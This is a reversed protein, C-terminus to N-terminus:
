QTDVVQKSQKDLILEYAGVVDRGARNWSRFEEVWARAQTGTTKRLEPNKLLRVLVESLSKADGKEFLFGNLGDTVIEVLARTNSVVVPKQMAMAEFPKLPSVLECVQWPKRPFPAIDILSYHAEVEEHPVRGTLIAIDDLGCDHILQRLEEIVAGDGVLLLRFDIGADRILAAASVLDDLGEYDVFSGVYGIVPVGAPIGLRQALANDRQLPLFRQPDVSNFAISIREPAVGREILEEKMATTITVIHDAERVVLDEFYQMNRFKVSKEFAADRSSRTIEWFGRIEYIFPLGTRRAAILAPLATTYNSAAHVLAPRENRIAEECRDAAQLLYESESIGRRGEGSLRHYSLGDIEDIKAIEQGELEPKFDQPFGPRTYPKIDWGANKVGLAIGHSRTAYGVSTYPLSFHLFNISTHHKPEVADVQSPAAAEVFIRQRSNIQKMLARSTDDLGADDEATLNLLRLAEDDECCNFFVTAAGKLTTRDKSADIAAYALRKATDAQGERVACAAAKMALFGQIRPALGECQRSVLQLLGTSGGDQIAKSVNEDWQQKDDATLSSVGDPLPLLLAATDDLVETVETKPPVCAEFSADLTSYAGVIDEAVRTWTRHKTVFTRANKGLEERLAPDSMLTEIAGALADPDAPRHLLGSHGHVIIERLAALDSAIIPMAMAMAELPKLPTVLECVREPKRPVVLCDCLALHRAVDARAVRGTFVVKDTVELEVALAQLAELQDGGGIILARLGPYRAALRQVAHLLDDLGEYSVLSGIYGVTFQAGNLGLQKALETDSPAVESQLQLAQSDIGNPALRIREASVGRRTLEDVLGQSLAFVMDAQTACLTELDRELCYRQRREWGPVRSAASLEWLGRVEYVFPLGLQRAAILAPLASEHNSAAHVVAPRIEALAQAYAKAAELLYEVPGLDDRGRCQIAQYSVGDVEWQNASVVTSLTDPRDAPYGPRTLCVVDLGVAALASCVSQTRLTYGSQHFPLASAAIYAIRHSSAPYVSNALRQPIVPPADMQQLLGTIKNAKAQESPRLPHDNPIAALWSAASSLHGADFHLFALWKTRYVAPELSHAKQGLELAQDPNTVFAVKAVQTLAHACQAPDSSLTHALRAIEETDASPLAAIMQSILDESGVSEPIVSARRRQRASAWLASLAGPFGIAGRWSRTAEVIARGLGFSTSDRIKVVDQKAAGLQRSLEGLETQSSALSAELELSYTHRAGLETQLQKIQVNAKALAEDRVIGSRRSALLDSERRGLNRQLRESGKRVEALEHHLTDIKVVGDTYAKQSSQLTQQTSALQTMLENRQSTALALAQREEDLRQKLVLINIDAEACRNKLSSVQAVLGDCQAHLHSATKEHDRATTEIESRLAAATRESELLKEQLVARADESDRLLTQSNRAQQNSQEAFLERSAQFQQILEENKRSATDLEVRQVALLEQLEQRQQLLSAYEENSERLQEQAKLHSAQESKLQELLKECTKKQASLAAQSDTLAKSLDQQTQSAKSHWTESQNHLKNIEQAHVQESQAIASQLDAVEKAHQESRLIAETMQELRYRDLADLKRELQLRSYEVARIRDQYALVIHDVHRRDIEEIGKENDVQQDKMTKEITDM